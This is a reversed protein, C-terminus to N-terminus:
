SLAAIASGILNANEKQEVHIKIEHGFEKLIKDLENIVLDKYPLYSANRVKRDNSWFLSGEASLRIDTVPKEGTAIIQLILGSLSAAVLKASREYVWHAAKVYKEKFRSPYSMISTLKEADFNDEFEDSSFLYELIRGLYMGSIAKEFRQRGKTDLYKDIKDDIVTLHPPNFNGSELNIPILGKGTYAKDLKPIREVPIFPAMNTGTGVILGIHAQSKTDTLGSFLAAVTDNIVKINKFRAGKVNANLYDLLTKGVPKGILDKIDVGKNWKILNADGNLLSEGPYSFCYGIDTVGDLKLSSILSAMKAYLQELTCQPNKMLSVLNEKMGPHVIAEGNKFEVVTARFNTGGLDLVLAKGESIFKPNIYTPICRIEGDKAEVKEGKALKRDREEYDTVLGEAVGNQLAIAIDKLQETTLEFINSEM